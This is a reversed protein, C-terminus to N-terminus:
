DSFNPGFIGAGAVSTVHLSPMYQLPASLNTAPLQTDPDFGHSSLASQVVSVHSSTVSVHLCSKPALQADHLDSQTGLQVPLTQPSSPQPPLQPEHGMPWAHALADAM